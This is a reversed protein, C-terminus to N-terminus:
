RLDKLYFVFGRCYKDSEDFMEFDEHPIDTEYTWAFGDDGEACWKAKIYKCNPEKNYLIDGSANLWAIGGDYCGFEDYLAGDLECLDDSAGYVIVIDNKKAEETLAFPINRYESGNLRVALEKLDIM